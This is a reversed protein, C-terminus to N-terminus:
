AWRLVGEDRERKGPAAHPAPKEGETGPSLTPVSHPALPDNEDPKSPARFGATFDAEPLTALFILGLRAM